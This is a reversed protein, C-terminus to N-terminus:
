SMQKFITMAKFFILKAGKAEVMANYPQEERNLLKVYFDDNAWTTKTIISL